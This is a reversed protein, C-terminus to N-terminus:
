LGHLTPIAFFDMNWWGGGDERDEIERAPFDEPCESDEPYEQFPSGLNEFESPRKEEPM